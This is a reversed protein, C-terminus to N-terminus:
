NQQLSASVALSENAINLSENAIRWINLVATSQLRRLLREVDRYCEVLDDIDKEADFYARAGTREQKEEIHSALQNLKGTADSVAKSMQEPNVRSLHEELDQRAVSISSALDYFDKRNKAATPINDICSALM